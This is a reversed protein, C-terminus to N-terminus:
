CNVTSLVRHPTVVDGNCVTLRFHFVKFPLGLRSPRYTRIMIPRYVQPIRQGRPTIICHLRQITIRQINLQVSFYLLLLSLKIMCIGTSSPTCSVVMEDLIKDANYYRRNLHMRSIGYCNGEVTRVLLVICEIM